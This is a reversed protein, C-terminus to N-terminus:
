APTSVPQLVVLSWCIPMFLSKLLQSDAKGKRGHIYHQNPCHGVDLWVVPGYAKDYHCGHCWQLTLQSFSQSFSQSVIHCLFTQNATQIETKKKRRRMRGRERRRAREGRFLRYWSILGPTRASTSHTLFLQRSSKGHLREQSDLRKWASKDLLLVGTTSSLTLDGDRHTHQWRQPTGGPTEKRDRQTQHPEQLYLSLPVSSPPLRYHYKEERQILNQKWIVETGKPRM